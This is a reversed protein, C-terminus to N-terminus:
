NNKNEHKRRWENQIERCKDCSWSIYKYRCDNNCVTTGCVSANIANQVFYFAYDGLIESSREECFSKLTNRELLARSKDSLKYFKGERAEM